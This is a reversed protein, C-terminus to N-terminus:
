ENTKTKLNKHIETVAGGVTQPLKKHFADFDGGNSIYREAIVGFKKETKRIKGTQRLWRNAFRVLRAGTKEVRLKRKQEKKKEKEADVKKEKVAKVKKAPADKKAASKKTVAKKGARKTETKKVMGAIAEKSLPQKGHGNTAPATKEAAAEKTDTNSM